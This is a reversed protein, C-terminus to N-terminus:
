IASFRNGTPSTIEPPIQLDGALSILDQRTFRFNTFCEEDNYKEVDFTRDTRKKKTSFPLLYGVEEPNIADLM